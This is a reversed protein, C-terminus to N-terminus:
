PQFFKRVSYHCCLHKDTFLVIKGFSLNFFRFSSFDVNQCVSLSVSLSYFYFIPWFNFCMYKEKFNRHLAISDIQPKPVRSFLRSFRHKFNPRLDYHEFDSFCLGRNGCFLFISTCSRRRSSYTTLWALVSLYLVEVIGYM